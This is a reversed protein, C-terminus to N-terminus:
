LVPAADIEVVVGCPLSTRVRVGSPEDPAMDRTAFKIIERVSLNSSARAELNQAMISDTLPIAGKGPPIVIDPKTEPWKQRDRQHEDLSVGVLVSDDDIMMQPEQYKLESPPRRQWPRLGRALQGM